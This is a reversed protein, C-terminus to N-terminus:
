FVTLVLVVDQALMPQGGVDYSYFMKKVISSRLAKRLCCHLIDSQCTSVSDYLKMKSLDILHKLDLRGCLIQLEKVSEWPKM